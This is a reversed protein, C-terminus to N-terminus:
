KGPLVDRTVEIIRSGAAAAGTPEQMEWYFTRDPLLAIPAGFYEKFHFRFTNVPMLQKPLRQRIAEDPILFANLLGRRTAM